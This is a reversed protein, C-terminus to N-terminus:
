LSAINPVTAWINTRDRELVKVVYKQKISKLEHVDLMPYNKIFDEGYVIGGAQTQAIYTKRRILTAYKIAKVCLPATESLKTALFICVKASAVRLKLLDEPAERTADTENGSDWDFFADIGGLSLLVVFGQVMRFDWINHSIFIRPKPIKVMLPSYFFEQNLSDSYFSSLKLLQSQEIAM